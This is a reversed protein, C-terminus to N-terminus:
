FDRRAFIVTAIFLLFAEYLLSTGLVWWSSRKRLAQAVKFGVDQQDVKTKRAAQRAEQLAREDPTMTENAADHGEKKESIQTSRLENISYLSRELLGITESTKPLATKAAYIMNAWPEIEKISQQAEEEKEVLSGFWPNIAMIEEDSPVYDDPVEQDAAKKQKLIVRGTSKRVQEVQKAYTERQVEAQSKLSLLIGDGMNVIFLMFWFLMTLLLAAITSRTILGVLACFAFLYSFFVIVLPIALLLKWEWVGGRIGIVLLCAVSFVTVQLAAFLLGAAYKTLFLRTRSIPKSLLMEISGGSVMEPIMGATTVLALITAIWSLWFKLGLNMFMQKYLLEPPMTESTVPIFGLHFWLFTVGEQDIGIAAYILVVLGSLLMTMWFLKRSNLERYADLFIALTQGIM